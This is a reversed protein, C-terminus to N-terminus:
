CMRNISWFYWYLCADDLRGLAQLSCFPLPLIFKARQKLCSTCRRDPSVPAVAKFESLSKCRQGQIKPKGPPETTYFGGALAPSELSTAEIGPQPIDGPTPFPIRVLIGAQFIGPVSSSPPSCNMPDCPTLCSQAISHVCVCVGQNKPM